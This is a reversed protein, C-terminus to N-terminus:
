LSQSAWSPHPSGGQREAPPPPPCGLHAGPSPAASGAKPHHNGATHQPRTSPSSPHIPCQGGGKPVRSRIPSASGPWNIPHNRPLLQLAGTRGPNPPLSPPPRRPVSPVHAVAGAAGCATACFGILTRGEPGPSRLGPQWGPVGAVGCGARDGLPFLTHTHTHASVTM